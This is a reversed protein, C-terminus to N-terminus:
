QKNPGLIIMTQETRLSENNTRDSQNMTQETRRTIIMTQETRRGVTQETRRRTLLAGINVKPASNVGTM